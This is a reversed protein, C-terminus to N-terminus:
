LIQQVDTFAVDGFDGLDLLFGSSSRVVASVTGIQMAKATVEKGNTSAAVSFTYSGDSLQTGDANKGDWAFFLNGASQAGLEQTQVVKGAANKITVTVKEAAADLQVGGYAAGSALPLKNGAVMVNKGIMGAAQMAQTENYGALLQTLTTNLKEIGNVTNLQALQSTVQANDLPNLPDQNKIQTMLLTLFRNELDATASTSETATKRSGIAAFLDAANTSATTSTTSSTAM